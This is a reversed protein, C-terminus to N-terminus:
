PVTAMESNDNPHAIDEKWEWRCRMEHSGHTRTVSLFASTEMCDPGASSQSYNAGIDIPCSHRNYVSHWSFWLRDILRFLKPQETNLTASELCSQAQYNAIQFLAKYIHWEANPQPLPATKAAWMVHVAPLSPVEAQLPLFNHLCGLHNGWGNSWIAVGMIENPLAWSTHFSLDDCPRFCFNELLPVSTWSAWWMHCDTLRLTVLSLM